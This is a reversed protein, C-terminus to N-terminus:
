GKLLAVVAGGGGDVAKPEVYALVPDRRQLLKRIRHKLVPEKGKSRLGKGHIIRVCRVGVRVCEALFADTALAAEDANLGHLDVEEQIVWHGRRLKRLIDRPLGDRLFQRDEEIEVDDGDLPLRALEELVAREDEIRKAPIAPPPDRWPEIRNTPRAPQVGRMEARFLDVDDPAHRPRKM